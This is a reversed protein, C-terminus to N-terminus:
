LGPLSHCIVQREKSGMISTCPGHGLRPYLLWPLGYSRGRGDLDRYIASCHLWFLWFGFEWSATSRRQRSCMCPDIFGLLGSGEQKRLSAHCGTQVEELGDMGDLCVWWGSYRMLAAIIYRLSSGRWM